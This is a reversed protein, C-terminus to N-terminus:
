RRAFFRPLSSANSLAATVSGLAFWPPSFIRLWLREAVHAMRLGSISRIKHDKEFLQLLAAWWWAPKQFRAQEATM